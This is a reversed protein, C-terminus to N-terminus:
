SVQLPGTYEFWYKVEEPPTEEMLKRRAKLDEMLDEMYTPPDSASLRRHSDDVDRKNQPSHFEYANNTPSAFSESTSSRATEAPHKLHHYTQAFSSGASYFLASAAVLKMATLLNTGRDDQPISEEPLDHHHNSMISPSQKLQITPHTHKTWNSKQPKRRSRNMKQDNNPKPNQTKTSNLAHNESKVRSSVCSVLEGFLGNWKWQISMYPLHMTVFAFPLTFKMGLWQFWFLLTHKANTNTLVPEDEIKM